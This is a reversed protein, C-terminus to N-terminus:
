DLVCAFSLSQSTHVICESYFSPFPHKVTVDVRGSVLV